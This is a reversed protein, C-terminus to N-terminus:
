NPYELTIEDRIFIGDEIESTILYILKIKETNTLMRNFEIELNKADIWTESLEIDGLSEEYSISTLTRESRIIENDFTVSIKQPITEVPSGNEPIVEYSIAIEEGKTLTIVRFTGFANLVVLVILLIFSISKYNIPSIASDRLNFLKVNEEIDKRWAFIFPVVVVMSVLHLVQGFNDFLGKKLVIVELTPIGIMDFILLLISVIIYPDKFLSKGKQEFLIILIFIYFMHYGWAIGSAGHGIYNDTTHIYGIITTSILTVISILAFRRSGIIIECIVGFVIFVLLNGIFHNILIDPSHTFSSLTFLYFSKLTAVQGTIDSYSDSLFFQPITSILCSVILLISVIPLRRKVQFIISKLM